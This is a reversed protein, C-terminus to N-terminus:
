VNSRAFSRLLYRMACALLIVYGSLLIKEAVAPSTVTMMGALALHGAWNPVPKLNITYYERWPGPDDRMWHLLLQANQLHAPGDQSPFYRVSWIPVLHLLVLAWFLLTTVNSRTMPVSPALAPPLPQPDHGPLALTM